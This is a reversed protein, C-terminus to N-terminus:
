ENIKNILSKLENIVVELREIDEDPFVELKSMMAAEVHKKYISIYEKGKPTAELSIIRRDTSSPIRIILGDEVLKNSAATVNSKPVMMMESYFSTPQGSFAGVKFLLELHQRQMDPVQFIRKFKKFIFPMVSIMAEATKQRDM